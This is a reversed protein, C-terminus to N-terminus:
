FFNSFLRGVSVLAAMRRPINLRRPPSNALVGLLIREAAVNVPLMWPRVPAKAMKTDVFGLRVNVVRVGTHQVARAVSELYHSMGAKSASYAPSAKGRLVDAMSSLGVFTGSQRAVMQPLACEMARVLGVLNVEFAAADNELRSVDFGHGVGACYIVLSITGEGLAQTLADVYQSARVDVVIHQYNAHNLPSRSRSLGHVTWGRDVLAITLALGIGDSNGILLARGSM